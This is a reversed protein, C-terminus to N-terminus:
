RTAVDTSAPFQFKESLKVTNVWDRPLVQKRLMHM